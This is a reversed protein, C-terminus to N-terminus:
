SFYEEPDVKRSEIFRNLSSESVRLARKGVRIAKLHGDKILTYVYSNHCNLREAVNHVCLLRDKKETMTMTRDNQQDFVDFLLEYIM